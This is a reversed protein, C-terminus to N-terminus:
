KNNTLESYKKENKRWELCATILNIIILISFNFLTKKILYDDLIKNLIDFFVFITIREFICFLLLIIPISLIIGIACNVLWKLIYKLIGKKRKKEWKKIFEDSTM